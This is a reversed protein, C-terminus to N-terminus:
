SKKAWMLCEKITPGPGIPRIGAVCARSVPVLRRAGSVQLARTDTLRTAKWNKRTCTEQAYTVPLLSHSNHVGPPRPGISTLCCLVYM